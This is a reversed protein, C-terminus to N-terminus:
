KSTCAANDWLNRSSQYRQWVVNLTDQNMFHDSCRKRPVKPDSVLTLNRFAQVNEVYLAVCSRCVRVPVANELM